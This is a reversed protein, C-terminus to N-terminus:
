CLLLNDFICLSDCLSQSRRYLLHDELRDLAPKSQGDLDAARCLLLTIIEVYHHGASVLGRPLATAVAAVHHAGASEPAGLM